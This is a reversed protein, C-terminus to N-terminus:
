PTHMRSITQLIYIRNGIKKILLCFRAGGGGGGGGRGLSHRGRGGM